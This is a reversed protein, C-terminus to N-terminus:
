LGDLGDGQGGLLQGADAGRRALAHQGIVRAPPPRLLQDFVQLRSMHPMTGAAPIPLLIWGWANEFSSRGTLLRKSPWASRGRATLSYRISRISTAPAVRMQKTMEGPLDSM